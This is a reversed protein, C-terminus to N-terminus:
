NPGLVRMSFLSRRVLGLSWVAKLTALERRAIGLRRSLESGCRGDASLQTGLYILATKEAIPDWRSTILGHDSKVGM